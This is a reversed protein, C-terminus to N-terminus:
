PRSDTGDEGSSPAATAALASASTASNMGSSVLSSAWFARLCAGARAGAGSMRKRPCQNSGCSSDKQFLSKREDEEKRGQQIRLEGVGEGAGADATGCANRERAAKEPGEAGSASTM